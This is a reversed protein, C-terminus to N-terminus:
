IKNEHSPFHNYKGTLTFIDSIIEKELNVMILCFLVSVPKTIHDLDYLDFLFLHNQIITLFDFIVM